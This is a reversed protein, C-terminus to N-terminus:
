VVDGGDVVVRAVAPQRLATHLVARNETTNIKEGSFMAARRQEVGAAGALAELLGVTEETAAWKSYDLLLDGQQASFADFRAPDAAFAARMDLPCIAERHMQLARLAADFGPRDM